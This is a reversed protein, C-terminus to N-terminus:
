FCVCFFPMFITVPNSIGKGLPHTPIYTYFEAVSSFFGCTIPRSLSSVLFFCIGRLRQLTWSRTTNRKLGSSNRSSIYKILDILDLTLNVRRQRYFMNTVLSVLIYKLIMRRENQGMEDMGRHASKSENQPLIKRFTCSQMQQLIWVAV